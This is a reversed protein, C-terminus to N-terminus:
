PGGGAMGAMERRASTTSGRILQRTVRARASLADPCTAPKMRPNQTSMLDKQGFSSLRAGHCLPYRDLIGPKEFAERRLDLGADLGERGLLAEVRPRRNEGLAVRR